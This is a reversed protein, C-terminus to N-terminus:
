DAYEEDSNNGLLFSRTKPNYSRSVGTRRLIGLDDLYSLVGFLYLCRPPESPDGAHFNAWQLDNTVGISLEMELPVDQGAELTFPVITGTQGQSLDEMGRSPSRSTEMSIIGKTIRARSGGANIITLRVKGIAPEGLNAINFDFARAGRVIIKPRYQLLLTKIEIKRSEQMETLQGQMHGAQIGMAKTALKTERAQCAIAFGTLAAIIVLWWESSAYWHPSSPKPAETYTESKRNDQSTIAICTKDPSDDKHKAASDSPQAFLNIAIFCLILVISVKM